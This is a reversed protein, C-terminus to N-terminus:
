SLAYVDFVFPVLVWDTPGRIKNRRLTPSVYRVSGVFHTHADNAYPAAGPARLSILYGKDLKVKQLAARATAPDFQPDRGFADVPLGVAVRRFSQVIPLAFARYTNPFFWGTPIEKPASYVIVGPGETRTLADLRDLTAYSAGFLPFRTIRHTERIEPVFDVAAVICLAAIAVRAVVARSRVVSGYTDVIVHLAIAAFVLAAPLVESFLYRDYYLYYAHPLSRPVRAAFLVSYTCIVLLLLFASVGDLYRGPRVVVGLVGVITLLVLVAGWRALADKLGAHHVALLIAGTVVVAVAYATRWFVVPRDVVKARLRATVLATAALVAAIAVAVAV